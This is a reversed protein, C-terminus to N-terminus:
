CLLGSVPSCRVKGTEMELFVGPTETPASQEMFHGGLLGCMSREMTPRVFLAPPILLLASVSACIMAATFCNSDGVARVHRVSQSGLRESSAVRTPTLCRLQTDYALSAQLQQGIREV